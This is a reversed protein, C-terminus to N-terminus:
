ARTTLHDLDLPDSEVYDKASMDELTLVTVQVDIFRGSPPVLREWLELFGVWPKGEFSAQDAHPIFLFALKV